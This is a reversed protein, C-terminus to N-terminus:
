KESFRTTGAILGLGRSSYGPVRAVLGCLCDYFNYIIVTVNMIVVAMLMLTQVKRDM